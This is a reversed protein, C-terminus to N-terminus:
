PLLLHPSTPHVSILCASYQWQLHRWCRQGFSYLWTALLLLGFPFHSRYVFLSLCLIFFSHFRSRRDWWWFFVQAPSGKRVSLLPFSSLYIFTWRSVFLLIVSAALSIGSSFCFLQVLNCLLLFSDFSYWSNLFVVLQFFLVLFLWSHM